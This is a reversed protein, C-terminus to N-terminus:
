VVQKYVLCGQQCDIAPSIPGINISKLGAVVQISVQLAEVYVRFCFRLHQIIIVIIRLFLYLILM